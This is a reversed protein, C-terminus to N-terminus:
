GYLGWEWVEALRHCEVLVLWTAPAADGLYHRQVDQRSLFQLLRSKGMGSLGIIAGSEGARVLDFLPQAIGRRYTIPHAPGIEPM